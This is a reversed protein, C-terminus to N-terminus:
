QTPEQIIQSNRILSISPSLFNKIPDMFKDFNYNYSTGKFKTMQINVTIPTVKNNYIGQNFLIIEEQREFFLHDIDRIHISVLVLLKM